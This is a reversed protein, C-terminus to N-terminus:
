NGEERWGGVFIAALLGVFLALAIWLPALALWWSCTLVGVGKAAALVLTLVFLAPFILGLPDIHRATPATSATRSTPTAPSDFLSGPLRLHEPNTTDWGAPIEDVYDAFREGVLQAALEQPVEFYVGPPVELVEVGSVDPPVWLPFPSVLVPRERQSNEFQAPTM